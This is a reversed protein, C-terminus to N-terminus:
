ARTHLRHQGPQPRPAEGRLAGCRARAYWEASSEGAQWGAVGISLTIREIAEPHGRVVLPRTALLECLRTAIGATHHPRAGPLRATAM